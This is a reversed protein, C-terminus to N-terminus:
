PNTAPTKIAAPKKSAAAAPKKTTVAGPKKAVPAAPVIVATKISDLNPYTSKLFTNGHAEIQGQANTPQDDYESDFKAIVDMGENVQGFAAFGQADLRSNDGLNVFVQTTRTNPGATAYTLTGQKNSETVPDDPINAHSWPASIKPDGNIGFQVVFGPVVRFLVCNNYFGNKVLNYFRDAGLPASARTVEVVFDGKTTTFKAKFTAPAKQNLSSPDLLSRHVAPSHTTAHHTTSSPKKTTQSQSQGWIASTFLCTLAALSAIGALFSRMM